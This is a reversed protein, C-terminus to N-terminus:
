PVIWSMSGSAGQGPTVTFGYASSGSPVEYAFEAVGGMGPSIPAVQRANFAPLSTPYPKVVKGHSDTLRFQKASIKFASSLGKNEISVSVVLFRKGSAPKTGDPLSPRMKGSEVIVKWPGSIQATGPMKPGRMRKGASSGSGQPSSDATVTATNSPPTLSFSLSGDEKPTVVVCGALAFALLAALAVVGIRRLVTVAEEAIRGSTEGITSQAESM